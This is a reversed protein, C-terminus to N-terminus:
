NLLELIMNVTVVNTCLIDFVFLNIIKNGHLLLRTTFKNWPFCKLKM